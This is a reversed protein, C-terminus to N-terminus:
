LKVYLNKLLWIHMSLLWLFIFHIVAILLLLLLLQITYTQFFSKSPFSQCCYCAPLSWHHTPEPSPHPKKTKITSFPLNVTQRGFQEWYQPGTRPFRSNVQRKKGTARKVHRLTLGALLFVVFQQCPSSSVLRGLCVCLVVCVCVACKTCNVRMRRQICSTRHAHVPSLHHMNHSYPSVPRHIPGRYQKKPLQTLLLIIM